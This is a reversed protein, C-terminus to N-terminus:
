PTQCLAVAATIFTVRKALHSSMSHLDTWGSRRHEPNMTAFSPQLDPHNTTTDAAPISCLGRTQTQLVYRVTTVNKTMPSDSSSSVDCQQQQQRIPCPQPSSVLINLQQVDGTLCQYRQQIIHAEKDCGRKNVVVFRGLCVSHLEELQMLVCGTTVHNFHVVQMTLALDSIM